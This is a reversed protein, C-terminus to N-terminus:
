RSCAAMSHSGAGDIALENESLTLVAGGENATLELRFRILYSCPRNSIRAAVDLRNIVRRYCVVGISRVLGVSRLALCAALGSRVATAVAAPWVVPSVCRDASALADRAAVAAGPRCRGLRLVSWTSWAAARRRSRVLGVSRLALCAAMGSRVAM